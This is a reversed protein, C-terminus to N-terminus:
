PAPSDFVCQKPCIWVRYVVKRELVFEWKRGNAATQCEQDKMFLRRIDTLCGTGIILGEGDVRNNRDRDAIIWLDFTYYGFQGKSDGRATLNNYTVCIAPYTLKKREYLVDNTDYLYITNDKVKDLTKLRTIIDQALADIIDNGTQPM